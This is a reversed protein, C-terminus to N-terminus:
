VDVQADFCLVEATSCAENRVKKSNEFDPSM